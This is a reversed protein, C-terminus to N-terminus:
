EASDDYIFVTSTETVHMVNDGRAGVVAGDDSTEVNARASNAGPEADWDAAPGDPHTPPVDAADIKLADDHSRADARAGLSAPDRRQRSLARSASREPTTRVRTADISTPV